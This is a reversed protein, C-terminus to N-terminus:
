IRARDHSMWYLRLLFGDYKLYWVDFHLNM